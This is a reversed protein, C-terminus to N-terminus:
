MLADHKGNDLIYDRSYLANKSLFAMPKKKLLCLKKNIFYKLRTGRYLNKHIIYPPEPCMIHRHM